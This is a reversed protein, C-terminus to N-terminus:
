SDILDRNEDILRLLHVRALQQWRTIPMANLRRTIALVSNFFRRWHEIDFDSPGSALAESLELLAVEAYGALRPDGTTAQELCDRIRACLARQDEDLELRRLMM